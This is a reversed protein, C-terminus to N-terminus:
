VAPFSAPGPSAWPAPIPPLFGATPPSGQPLQLRPSCLSPQRSSGTPKVALSFWGCVGCCHTPCVSGAGLFCEERSFSWYCPVWSLNPLFHHGPGATGTPSLAVFLFPLPWGPFPKQSGCRERLRPNAGGQTISGLVPHGLPSLPVKHAQVGVRSPPPRQERCLELSEFPKISGGFSPEPLSSNVHRALSFPSGGESLVKGATM